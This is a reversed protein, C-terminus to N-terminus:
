YPTQVYCQNNSGYKKLEPRTYDFNLRLGRWALNYEMFLKAIRIKPVNVYHDHNM